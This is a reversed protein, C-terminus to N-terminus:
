TPTRRGTQGFALPVPDLQPDAGGHGGLGRQLAPEEAAPRGVAVPEDVGPRVGVRGFAASPLRSCLSSGSGPVAQTTRRIKAPYRAPRPRNAM